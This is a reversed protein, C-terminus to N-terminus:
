ELSEAVAEANSLLGLTFLKFCPFDLRGFGQLSPSYELTLSLLAKVIVQMSFRRNFHKLGREGGEGRYMNCAVAEYYNFFLVSLFSISHLCTARFTLAVLGTFCFLYELTFAFAKAHSKAPM